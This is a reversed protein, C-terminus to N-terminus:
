KICVWWLNEPPVSHLCPIEYGQKIEDAIEDGIMKLM